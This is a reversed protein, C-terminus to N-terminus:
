LCKKFYGEARGRATLASQLARQPRGQLLTVGSRALPRFLWYALDASSFGHTRLVFGHGRAYALAKQRAAKDPSPVDLSKHHGYLSPDYRVKAGQHLARLVIEQGECAQWPTSAGVGVDEDYGGVADLIARSFFAVWEIQTTWVLDRTVWSATEEFRGNISRAEEDAARGTVIDAEKSQILSVARELFWSPYWCDDDPFAIVEGKAQRWGVNRGRSLGRAGPTHIREVPFTADADAIVRAIRDDDNQDVVIVDFDRYTQADLSAFLRALEDARGLTSIVLSIKM